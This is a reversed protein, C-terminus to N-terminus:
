KVHPTEQYLRVCDSSHGTIEKVIKEEIGASFLRTAATRRLSHNTFKGPIYAAEM